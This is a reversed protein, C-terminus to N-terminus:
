WPLSFTKETTYGRVAEIVGEKRGLGSDKIGGFPTSELRFGPVEGVNVTGAHLERVLRTALDLRTTFVGASLAYRSSNAIRIAEEVDAFRLVPSVPGFTEETVLPLEPTVRDLVTPPYCAGARGGGALLRAGADVAGGVAAEVARAASEDILTGVSTAEALPDGCRFGATEALLHEVFRDAVEAQVLIRKVATCRQGSNGYSGQATLRAAAPLDADALVVVPDNGGLELVLRRYGATDAIWRGTRASGTFAVVEARPDTVLATGIEAPDGTLVQLMEGPLGAAHLLDAFALATLPTRESPKLVVRNNSAVAPAVKHVVQNLPHNFPTIACIVGLLPERLTFITRARAPEAVDCPFIRGDDSLAEHAAFLLVEAARAVEHRSDRLCLGSELTILRAWREATATLQERADMLIQHRRRRTLTGRFRGAVEYAERVDAPSARAVTGVLEGTYPYRVEIRRDRFATGGGLRLGEHRPPGLATTAATTRTM